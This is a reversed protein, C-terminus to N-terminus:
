PVIVRKRLLVNLTTHKIRSPLPTLREYLRRSTYSYDVVEFGYRSFLNEITQPCFWSIHERNVPKLKGFLFHYLAYKWCWPNPTSIVLSGQDNLARSISSIFGHLNPLHEILDGATVVDFIEQFDFNQADGFVINFGEKNLADVGEKYYDLGVIHEANDALAKFLWFKSKWNDEFHDVSGLDLVKLGKSHKVFFAIKGDSFDIPQSVDSSYIDARISKREDANLVQKM